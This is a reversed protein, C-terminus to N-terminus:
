FVRQEEKEMEPATTRRLLARTRAILELVGFPKTIYDDAGM